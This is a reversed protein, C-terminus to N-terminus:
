GTRVVGAATLCDQVLLHVLASMEWGGRAAALPALSRTTMGPSTNVELVWAQGTEDLILDVRALGSTGIARTAALAAGAVATRARSALRFDFRYETLSSQYKADFSFIRDPAIVELLPLPQRGLVAVTFERGVVLREAMLLRGYCAAEDIRAALQGTDEAIGVGLSSGQGDPKIILPYGLHAVRAKLIRPPIDADFCVFNPTPVGGAAFSQKAACKSMALRCAEPGSGTYPVELDDLQHQITGDEGAGGHLAIFAADFARWDIDTLCREAPDMATVQHGATALGTAVAAGSALSIEREASEGGTLV